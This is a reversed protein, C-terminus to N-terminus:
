TMKSNTTHAIHDAGSIASRQMAFAQALAVDIPSNDDLEVLREDWTALGAAHCLLDVLRRV